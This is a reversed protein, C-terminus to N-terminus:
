SLTCPNHKEFIRISINQAIFGCAPVFLSYGIKNGNAKIQLGPVM